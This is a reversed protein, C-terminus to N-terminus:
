FGVSVEVIGGVFGGFASSGGSVVVTEMVGGEALFELAFSPGFVHRYGARGRAVFSAFVEGTIGQLLNEYGAGANLVIQNSAYTDLPLRLEYGFQTTLGGMSTATGSSLQSIYGVDLFLTSSEGLSYGFKIGVGQGFGFNYSNFVYRPYVFAGLVFGKGRRLAGNRAESDRHEEYEVQSLPANPDEAKGAHNNDDETERKKKLETETGPTSGDTMGGRMEANFDGGLGTEPAIDQSASSVLSELRERYKDSDAADPAQSVYARYDDIAPYVNGLKEHCLGRDRYLTPDISHRLAEDFLDLAGKCDGAAAKARAADAAVNRSKDYSVTVSGGGSGTGRVVSGGGGGQTPQTTGGGTNGTNGTGQGGRGGGRQAWASQSALVIALLVLRGRM